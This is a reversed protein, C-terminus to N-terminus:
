DNTTETAKAMERMEGCLKCSCEPEGCDETFGDRGGEQYTKGCPHWWMGGGGYARIGGGTLRMQEEGDLTHWMNDCKALTRTLEQDTM